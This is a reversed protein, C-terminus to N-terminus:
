HESYFILSENWAPICQQDIHFLLVKLKTLQPINVLCSLSTPEPPSSIQHIYVLKLEQTNTLQPAKNLTLQKNLGLDSNGADESFVQQIIGM